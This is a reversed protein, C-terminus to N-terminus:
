SSTAPLKSGRPLTLCPPLPRFPMVLTSRRGLSVAMWSIHLELCLLTNEICGSSHATLMALVSRAVLHMCM